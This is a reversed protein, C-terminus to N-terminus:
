PSILGGPIDAESGSNRGAVKLTREGLNNLCNFVNNLAGPFRKDLDSLFKKSSARADGLNGPCIEHPPVVTVSSTFAATQSELAFALPRILRIRGGFLDVRPPMTSINGHYIMNMLLTELIDNMHHGMAICTYNSEFARKILATRRRMSCYFCNVPGDSEKSIPYYIVEFDFGLIEARERIAAIPISGSCTIDTAIHCVRFHVNPFQSQRHRGFLEMMCFSDKGGSVALLVRDQPVIMKYKKLGDVFQEEICSASTNVTQESDM